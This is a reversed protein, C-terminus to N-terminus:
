KWLGSSRSAPVGNSWCAKVGTLGCAGTWSSSSSSSLKDAMARPSRQWGCLPPRALSAREVIPRQRLRFFSEPNV